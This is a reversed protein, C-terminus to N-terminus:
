EGSRRARVHESFRSRCARAAGLLEGYETGSRIAAFMPDTEIAAVACFNRRLSERLLRVAAADDGCYALDSAWFYLPETTGCPSSRACTM